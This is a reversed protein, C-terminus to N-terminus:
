KTLEDSAHSQSNWFHLLSVMEKTHWTPVNDDKSGYKFLMPIGALNSIYLDNQFLDLSSKLIGSLAADNYHRGQQWTFPVYNSLSIYPAGIVAGLILDPYKTSFYLTGQGGNSHGAIMFRKTDIKRATKKVEDALGYMNGAFAKLASLPSCITTQWDLGWPSRGSPHIIWSHEQPLLAEQANKARVDVGAGHLYVLAPTLETSSSTLNRPPVVAAYQLTDDSDLFTYRYSFIQTPDRGVLRVHKLALKIMVTSPTLDGGFQYSLRIKLHDIIDPVPMLTTLRAKIPRTQLPALRIM